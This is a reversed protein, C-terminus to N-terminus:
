ILLKDSEDPPHLVKQCWDWEEKSCSLRGRLWEIVKEPNTEGIITPTLVLQM